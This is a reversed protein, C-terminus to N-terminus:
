TAFDSTKLCIAARRKWEGTDSTRFAEIFDAINPTPSEEERRTAIMTQANMSAPQSVSPMPGVAASAGAGNRRGRRVGIGCCGMGGPRPFRGLFHLRHCVRPRGPFAPHAGFLAASAFVEIFAGVEHVFANVFLHSRGPRHRRLGSALKRSRALMGKRWDVRQSANTM